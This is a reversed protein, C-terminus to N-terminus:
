GHNRERERQQRDLEDMWIYENTHMELVLRVPTRPIAVRGELGILNTVGSLALYLHGNHEVIAAFAHRTYPLTIYTGPFALTQFELATLEQATTASLETPM